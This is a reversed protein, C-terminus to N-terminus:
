TPLDLSFSTLIHRQLNTVETLTHGYKGAYKIKTLTAMEGLLERITHKEILNSTRTKKRLASMLISAIFQVFLQGDM